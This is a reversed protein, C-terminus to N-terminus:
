IANTPINKLSTNIQKVDAFLKLNFIKWTVVDFQGM